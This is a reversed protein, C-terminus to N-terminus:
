PQATSEHEHRILLKISRPTTKDTVYLLQGDAISLDALSMTLHKRLQAEISAPARLYLSKTGGSATPMVVGPGSLRFSPDDVLRDLISQLSDTPTCAMDLPKVSCTVCDPKKEYELTYTYIGESDNFLMYNNLNPSAGNSALKFAENACVAAVVANTSAVAPIIRKVVGQTLRYTVGQIGYQTARELAKEYLWKIHETDDGDLPKDGFHDKWQVVKAYEVCHEPLRPTHAITCLPYNVAPPFLDLTCDICATMGPLIVRANGKFGETGGDILPVISAPDLEGSQDYRLLDVLMGNIWRRALISDLGCVVMTFSRYFDEGFEQIRKYYPTVTCGPVRKNVFAAAVDAKPKGVDHSRFLFQRNLNSLDITDMDIVHINRFGSLALDKLLECGLGGAGIVLVKCTSLFELLEPCPEFGPQALPGARNLLKQIHAWRPGAIGEDGAAGDPTTDM